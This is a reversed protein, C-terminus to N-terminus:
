QQGQNRVSEAQKIISALFNYGEPSFRNQYTKKQDIYYEVFLCAKDMYMEVDTMINGKSLFTLRVNPSCSTRPKKLPDTILTKIFSQTAAPESQSISFNTGRFYYDIHDCEQYLKTLFEAPVPPLVEAVAATQQVAPAPNTKTNESKCAFLLALVIISYIYKM